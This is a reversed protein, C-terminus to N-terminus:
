GSTTFSGLKHLVRSRVQHADIGLRVLIATGPSDPVAFLALLIHETGVYNRMFALSEQSAQSLVTEADETFPLLATTPATGAAAPLAGTIAEASGTLEVLVQAAVGDPEGLLGFLLHETGVADDGRDRASRQAHVLVDAARQTFRTVSLDSTAM